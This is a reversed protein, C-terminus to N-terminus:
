SMEWLVNLLFMTLLGGWFFWSSINMVWSSFFTESESSRITRTLNNKYNNKTSSSLLFSHLKGRQFSWISGYHKHNHIKGTNSICLPPVPYSMLIVLYWPTKISAGRSPLLFIRRNIKLACDILRDVRICDMFISLNLAAVEVSKTARSSLVTIGCNNLSSSMQWM